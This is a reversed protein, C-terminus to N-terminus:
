INKADQDKNGSVILGLIDAGESRLYKRKSQRGIHENDVIIRGISGTIQDLLECDFIRVEVEQASRALLPDPAGMDCGKLIRLRM